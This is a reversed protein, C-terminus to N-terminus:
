AGLSAEYERKRRDLSTLCPPKEGKRYFWPLLRQQRIADFISESNKDAYILTKWSDLQKLHHLDSNALIPLGSEMVERYTKRGSGLYHASRANSLHNKTIEVGSLLVLDYM